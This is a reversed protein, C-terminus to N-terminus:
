CHREQNSIETGLKFVRLEPSRDFGYLFSRHRSQKIKTTMWTSRFVTIVAQRSWQPSHSNPWYQTMHQREYKNRM